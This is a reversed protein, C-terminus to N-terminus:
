ESDFSQPPVAVTEKEFYRGQCAICKKCREVWNEFVHQQGNAALTLLITSCTTKAKAHISFGLFRIPRSRSEIASTRIPNWRNRHACGNSGSGYTTQCQRSLQEAMRYLTRKFRGYSFSYRRNSPHLDCWL